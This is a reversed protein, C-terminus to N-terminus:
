RLRLHIKNLREQYLYSRNNGKDANFCILGVCKKTIDNMFALVVTGVGQIIEGEYAILNNVNIEEGKTNYINFFADHWGVKSPEGNLNIDIRVTGKYPSNFKYTIEDTSYSAANEIRYEVDMKIEEYEAASVTVSIVLMTTLCVALSLIAKYMTKIKM